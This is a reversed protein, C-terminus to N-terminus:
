GSIWVMAPVLAYRIYDLLVDSRVIPDWYDLYLYLIYGIDLNKKSFAKGRKDIQELHNNGKLNVLLKSHNVQPIDM